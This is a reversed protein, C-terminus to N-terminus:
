CPVIFTEHTIGCMEEIEVSSLVEDEGKDDLWSLRAKLSDLKAPINSSHSLHWEKLAAKILKLKEKLVYGGWGEVSFSNWKDTVFQKYGLMEQWCKLMRLPRPGWNEEDVSLQLPCHDSVGRLLAIQLCNPWKLCWDESLLFRDLRSMSLGDGKFWTYRRGCFSLDILMNDEIFLNFPFADLSAIGGRFSRREEEVRVANFDGCVCVNQGCTNYVFM